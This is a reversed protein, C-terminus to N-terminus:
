ARISPSHPTFPQPQRLRPGPLRKAIQQSSTNARGPLGRPESLLTRVHVHPRITARAHAPYALSNVSSFTLLLQSFLSAFGAWAPESGARTASTRERCGCRFFRVSLDSDSAWLQSERLMETGLEWM